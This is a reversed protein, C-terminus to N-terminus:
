NLIKNREVEVLNIINALQEDSIHVISTENQKIVLVGNEEVMEPEGKEITIKVDKYAEKLPQLDQILADFRKDKKFNTLVLLLNNLMMKQEGIRESIKENPIEKVVQTALYLGEIWVGTVLLASINTRSNERLYADMKNFSNVSIYMLSDLNTSNTALSKLTSFDFFQGVKLEDAVNRIASIYSMVVGMKNYMNLYGLDAGLVGLNLAQKFNTNLDDIRDTNSIYKKDFPVDSEKILAAMEIPSSSALDILGEMTEKSIEIYSDDEFLNPIKEQVVKKEATNTCSIYLLAFLSFYMIKRIM